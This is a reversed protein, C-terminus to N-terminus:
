AADGESRKPWREKVRELIAAQASNALQYSVLECGAAWLKLGLPVSGDRTKRWLHVSVGLRSAFQEDTEGSAEEHEVLAAVFDVIPRSYQQLRSRDFPLRPM